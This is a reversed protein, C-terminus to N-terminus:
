LVGIISRARELRKNVNRTQTTGGAMAQLFEPDEELQRLQDNQIHGTLLRKAPFADRCVAAFVAEYLAVNFRKSKKSEFANQPLNTCAALFSDFLQLLYRNQDDGHARV